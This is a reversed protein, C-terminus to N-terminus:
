RAATIGALASSSRRVGEAWEVAEALGLAEALRPRARDAAGVTIEAGALDLLLKATSQRDGLSRMADIAEMRHGASEPGRGATGHIDALLEHARAQGVPSRVRRAHRLAGDGFRLALAGERRANHIEALKLLIRWLVPPGSEAFLGEGGTCIAVGEELEEIAASLDGDRQLIGGLDLYLEAILAPDGARMAQALAQRYEARAAEVQSRAMALRALSRHIHAQCTRDGAAHELAEALVGEVAQSNGTWLLAEGLRLAIRALRAGTPDDGRLFAWRALEWARRYHVAAGRDDFAAQCELGARELLAIARVGGEAAHGHYGLVAPRASSGELLQFYQAHFERRADVPIADYAVDAVFPSAFAVKGDQRLLMGRHALLALTGDVDDGARMMRALPATGVELGIVSALQLARRAAGPLTQIRSSILDSLTGSEVVGGELMLRLAQEVFLPSGGCEAALKEGLQESGPSTGLIRRALTVVDDIDLPDLVLTDTATWEEVESGSAATVIVCLPGDGPAEVLRELVGLSTADYREVDEFILVSPPTGARGRLASLAAAACERRRVALELGTEVGALRFLEALGPVLNREDLGAASVREKLESVGVEVRTDLLAAVVRRIPWWPEATGTPDPGQRVVRYGLKAVRRLVEGLLRTKGVGHPGILALSRGGSRALLNEVRELERARGVFPLPFKVHTPQAEFAGSDIRVTEAGQAAAPVPLVPGPRAVQKAGCRPCFTAEVPVHGDCALCRAGTAPALSVCGELDARFEAASEYRDDADKALARICAAELSAPIPADPRRKRPAIPEENLHRMLVDIQTSGTFPCAGTLMEYLVVGASYVDARGDLDAGRIQEPSMYDPTGCIINGGTPKSEKGAPAPDEVRLKAIGFDCVKVLDGGTRLREILINDPKLDRHVVGLSHAEDLGALVQGLIDVVRAAPIPFEQRILETLTRGRVYEMVLYLLGEPTEGFDIIAVTNPHNIRSAARAEKQFRRSMEPERAYAPNLIKVAVTRGLTVQDARYVTGMAGTGLVDRLVFKGGFTTGVSPHKDAGV